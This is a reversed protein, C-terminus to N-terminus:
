KDKNLIFCFVNQRRDFPTEDPPRANGAIYGGWDAAAEGWHATKIQRIAEDRPDRYTVDDHTL